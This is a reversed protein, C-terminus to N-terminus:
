TVIPPEASSFDENSVVSGLFKQKKPRKRQNLTSLTVSIQTGPFYGPQGM